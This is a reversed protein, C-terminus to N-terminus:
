VGKKQWPLEGNNYKRLYLYLTTKKISFVKLIDEIPITKDNHMKVMHEVQEKGFLYRRGGHRGRARAADLGAMTRDIILGREMEAFAGIIHFFFTGTTTSTDINESLSVFNIGRGNLAEILSILKKLTRGLRDLKYVVLTDGERLYDLAKNLAISQDKAGSEKTYFIKNCGYKELADKQLELNQDKTSVRAWGILTNMSLICYM